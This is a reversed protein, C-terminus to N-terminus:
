VLSDVFKGFILNPSECVLKRVGKLILPQERITHVSKVGRWVGGGM